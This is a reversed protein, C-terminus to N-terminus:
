EEAGHDYDNQELGGYQNLITFGTIQRGKSFRINGSGCM